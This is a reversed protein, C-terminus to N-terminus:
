KDENIRDMFLKAIYGIIIGTVIGMFILLPTLYFITNEKILILRIIVIQALNHSIAGLISIGIMSFRIKSKIFLMMIGFSCLSGSISLLTTPSLFLGSFFGGAITKGIIVILAYHVNGSVLLLLVVINALGLKMFPFPKPIFSEVVYITIAFATFFALHILRLNSLDLKHQEESIIENKM